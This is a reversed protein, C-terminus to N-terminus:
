PQPLADRTQELRAKLTRAVEVSTPDESDRGAINDARNIAATLANSYQSLLTATEDATLGVNQTIRNVLTEITRLENGLASHKSGVIFGYDPNRVTSILDLVAPAAAAVQRQVTVASPLSTAFVDNTVLPEPEAPLDAARGRAATRNPKPATEPLPHTPAPYDPTSPAPKAPSVLSFRIIVFCTATSALVSCAVALLVIGSTSTPSVSRSPRSVPRPPTM